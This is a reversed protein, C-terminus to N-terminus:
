VADFVDGRRTRRFSWSIILKILTYRMFLLINIVFLCYAAGSNYMALLLYFVESFWTFKVLLIHGQYARSENQVCFHMLSAAFSKLELVAIKEM